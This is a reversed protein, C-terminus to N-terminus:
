GGSGDEGARPRADDRRSPRNLQEALRAAYASREAPSMDAVIEGVALRAAEQGARLRDRQRTVVADFAGPDYPETRLIDALRAMDERMARRDAPRFANSDRLAGRLADRQPAELARILPGVTLDYRGGTDRPGGSILLGVAAGIVLLNLALSAVLLATRLRSTQRDPDSM